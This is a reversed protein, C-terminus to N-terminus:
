HKFFQRRTLIQQDDWQKYKHDIYTNWFGDENDYYNIPILPDNDLEQQADWKRADPGGYPKRYFDTACEEVEPEVEFEKISGETDYISRREAERSVEDMQLVNTEEDDDIGSTLIKQIEAEDAGGDFEDDSESDPDEPDVKYYRLENMMEKGTEMNLRIKNSACLSAIVDQLKGEIPQIMSAALNLSM